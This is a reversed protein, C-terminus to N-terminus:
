REGVRWVEDPTVIISVRRDNESMLHAFDDFVQVDHVLTIRPTEYSILRAYSLLEDEGDGQSGNGKGIRNGRKDVAVAGTIFLDVRPLFPDVSVSRGYITFGDMSTAELLKDPPVGALLCFGTLCPAAVILTKGERLVECHVHRLSVDPTTFVVRARRWEPLTALLRAAAQSDCFNPILGRCPRPIDVLDNVELYAWVAERLDEKSEFFQKRPDDM